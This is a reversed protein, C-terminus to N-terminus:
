MQNKKKISYKANDMTAYIEGMAPKKEIYVIRIWPYSAAIKM